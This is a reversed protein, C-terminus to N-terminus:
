KEKEQQTIVLQTNMKVVGNWSFLAFPYMHYILVVPPIRVRVVAIKLRKGGAKPSSHCIIRHHLSDVAEGQKKDKSKNYLVLRVSLRWKCQNVSGIKTPLTPNSGVWSYAVSKCLAGARWSQRRGKIIPPEVWGASFNEPTGLSVYETTDWTYTMSRNELLKRRCSLKEKKSALRDKSALSM